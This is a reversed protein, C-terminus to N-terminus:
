FHDPQPGTPQPQRANHVRLQLGPLGKDASATSKVHSSELEGSENEFVASRRQRFWAVTDAATAFWAGKGKLEEVLDTYFGDWCREPAISRDHWNVTVVGGFQVANDIIASVRERAEDPSLNLCAPYFLATDMIHLPLELLRGVGLPKYAQSTGARYGVTENYGVTSDYDAGAQDLALASSDGFYLWHMRVGISQPRTIRGIEELEARARSDDLWSDIGHVGIECGASKLERIKESIDDAGYRSARFSPAIGQGLRGPYDKFPIVFFTSCLGGDLYVYRDFDYWFDKALGLHVLPLKAAAMWNRMLARVSLRKRCVRAISGLVARYLFGLTTHDFKHHRVSPHDLDHTLCAIFRYGEPVPPIEALTAESMVILDRLLSIHLEIAPIAATPVPQGKTLLAQIEGFLDYGVRVVTRTRVRRLCIAPDGTAEDILLDDDGRFAVCDGYVPILCKKYRLMRCEKRRSAIEIGEKSDSALDRGAYVLVLDADADMLEGDDACLLVDYHIGNRYWEWPTKFLEFFERVVDSVSSSAIVGIM